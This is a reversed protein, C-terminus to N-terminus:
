SVKIPINKSHITTQAGISNQFLAFSIPIPFSQTYISPSKSPLHTHNGSQTQGRRSDGERRARGETQKHRQKTLGQQKQIPKTIDKKEKM